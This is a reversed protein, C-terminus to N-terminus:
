SAAGEAPAGGPAPGAAPSTEVPATPAPADALPGVSPSVAPGVSPRYPVQDARRVFADVLTGTAHEFVPSALTGLLAANFEWSLVFEVKCGWDSLPTLTWEGAFRRFPGEQLGIAMWHPARKPNRTVFGFRAGKWAVEIRAVVVEDSRELITAGSCWPLFAPYHEAAEILAYVHDAPHAVLSSRRVEM